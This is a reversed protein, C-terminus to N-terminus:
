KIRIIVVRRNQARGAETSNDAVPYDKGMGFVEFRNRALGKSIFYNLVSEARERSIKLNAKESGINDTHGEIRWRSISNQKIVEILKNLEPYASPLLTSSGFAFNAGASLTYEKVEEEVPCGKDDVKVGAATGSCKDLYDPVGDKDSDLPCGSEDVEVNSPTNSCKDKFDPVGDGDLDYPCGSKDVEVNKPTNSCLDLYDPVGDGDSDLPCGDNNVLVDKPTNPCKDQYDPIGDRDSDVPCGFDDVKVGPLTNNCLDESDDVGDGDSDRSFFFSFSAGALFSFFLDKNTGVSIDDFYDHTGLDVSGVLNFSLNETALFRIGIESLYNLERKSYLGANYNPLLLGGEGTPNFWMYSAGTFLYPTVVESLSLAYVLGGGAFAFYTRFANPNYDTDEGSIYGVGGIARIGLSSKTFSPFFYEISGRGMYDIKKTKYDTIGLTAGGEATLVFSGSFASYKNRHLQQSFSLGSFILILFICGKRFHFTYIKM